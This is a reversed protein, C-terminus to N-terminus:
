KQLVGIKHPCDEGFLTIQRKMNGNLTLTECAHLVVMQVQAGHMYLTCYFRVSMYNHLIHLYILHSHIHATNWQCYSKCTVVMVQKSQTCVVLEICSVTIIITFTSNDVMRQLQSTQLRGRDGMNTRWVIDLKGISTAQRLAAPNTRAEERPKLCYLYQRTDHPNVVNMRGFVLSNSDPLVKNM